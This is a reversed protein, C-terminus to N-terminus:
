ISLVKAKFLNLVSSQSCDAKEVLKASSQISNLSIEALIYAVRHDNMVTRKRNVVKKREISGTENFKDVLRRITAEDPYKSRDPHNEKFVKAIKRFSLGNHYFKAM